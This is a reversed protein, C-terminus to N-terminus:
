LILLSYNGTFAKNLDFSAKMHDKGCTVKVNFCTDKEYTTVGPLYTYPEKLHSLSARDLHSLRCVSKRFGARKGAFNNIRKGSNIRNIKKKQNKKKKDNNFYNENGNSSMTTSTTGDMDLNDDASYHSLGITSDEGMDFSRCKFASEMCKKKCESVTHINEYIADVTKLVLGSIPKFDCILQGRKNNAISSIHIVSERDDDRGKCNIEIYDYSPSSILIPNKLRSSRYNSNSNSSGKPQVKKKKSGAFEEFPTGYLSSHIPTIPRSPNMSPSQHGQNPASSSSKLNHPGM